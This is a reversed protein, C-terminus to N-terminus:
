ITPIRFEVRATNTRNAAIERRELRSGLLEEMMRLEMQVASPYAAFIAWLPHHYEEIRLGKGPEYACRSFCGDKERLATLLTAKEILSKARQMRPLLQAKKEDFYHSLVKEAAKDGFMPKFLGLMELTFSVGAQPFLVDSKRSLRYSIEPRGVESRAVRERELYGLKVLVECQQKVGMYSM